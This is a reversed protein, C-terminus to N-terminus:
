LTKAPGHDWGDCHHREHEMIWAAAHARTYILCLRESPIRVVCGFVYGLAPRGCASDIDRDSVELRYPRLPAHSPHQQWDDRVMSACGSLALAALLAYGTM